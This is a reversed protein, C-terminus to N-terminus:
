LDITKISLAHLEGSKLEVDFVKMIAQHKAVRSLHKLAATAIRVEFHDSTGTLDTVLVESEPYTAKLRMEIESTTMPKRYLGYCRSDFM